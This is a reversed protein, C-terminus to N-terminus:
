KNALRKLLGQFESILAPLSDADHFFIESDIGDATEMSTERRVFKIVDPNVQRSWGPFGISGIKKDVEIFKNGFLGVPEKQIRILDIQNRDPNILGYRYQRNRNKRLINDLQKYTIKYDAKDFNRTNRRLFDAIFLVEADPKNSFKSYNPYKEKLSNEAVSVALDEYLKQSANPYRKVKILHYFLSLLATRKNADHFAHNKVLGWFLSACIELDARWKITNGFGSFQRGLTSHLLTLSKPGIGGIGEEKESMFFDVILYHARLVDCIGLTRHTVYVDMGIEKEWRAYDERLEQSNLDM